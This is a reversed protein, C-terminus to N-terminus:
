YEYQPLQGLAKKMLGNKEPVITFERNVGDMRKRRGIASLM